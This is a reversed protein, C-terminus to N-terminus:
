QEQGGQETLVPEEEEEPVEGEGSDGLSAGSQGQGSDESSTGNQEGLEEEPGAVGEQPRELAAASHHGAERLGNQGEEGEASSNERKEERERSPQRNEILWKAQQGYQSAYELVRKECARLQVAQYACESLQGGALLSKDEQM